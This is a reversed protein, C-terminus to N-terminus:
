LDDTHRFGLFVPIRPKDKTGHQQYKFKVTSGLYRLRNSWIESRQASDFGTGIRFTTGEYSVVLSGLTGAPVLNAKCSSRETLGHADATPENENHMQEEFGIVTAEADEFRKIAVLYQEKLTSRGYKYPSDPQRVMVGEAENALCWQEYALLDDLNDLWKPLLKTCFPPLKMNELVPVVDAYTINRNDWGWGFVWMRFEPRGGQSMLGSTTSQFNTGTTLESDLWPPCLREITWRVHNNVIPKNSNTWTHVLHDVDSRYTRCRIGDIKPTALCPFRLLSLFEEFPM